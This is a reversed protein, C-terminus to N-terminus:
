EVTVSKALNRPMDVNLGKTVAVHYSLLQLPIINLLGQLCDVTRPVRIVATKADDLSTDTDNAIIIPAGKRATVQELASRVKPYISDQTMVLIVPMLEDILALPGHKLEGALIGESHMYTLEKIKLAAELCTAHQYGRGMILLSTQQALLPALAQYESDKQLLQRIQGPLEHLGDIISNRRATMSLRDESLQIAMMVLAIYQSTYAKTSAVGIEPGANVHIGCHSERSITSGVVNVIGVNLAGRELCYRMALITDATEGSQSVFVCVDDRFIPTKRDLFDSALEVSVPIETLEEFISRTALCSHYSTGCAVFVLRRCRRIVHLYAKLGGLTISHNDFNVRGRMTNVVSEPQEYIEKQMFHDFQGKMIAALEIELTEIARITSVTGDNKRLRHIHFEGEAIHAIDDDELYLVRKTHEVIASADSAIFFEIPQPMGDDSLFARSQSRVLKGGQPNAASPVALLSSAAQPVEEGNALAEEATGAGAFEVDVFDVKLKKETKVGILVPSGRRAVVVEDPYHISKFVFAFAGELEMIVSKILATFSIQKGKQSDYLYKALVAAVETDTDTQFKFGRKELVLRLEKYNTIIGNHVVTFEKMPDSMHPHCNTTSPVGHTAWRTHAISTQSVYSKDMDIDANMCKEKLHSVKGVEKFILPKDPEDGEIELGASDYGRYEMRQLGNILTELVFRRDRECLFSAYAFIGCQRVRTYRARQVRM